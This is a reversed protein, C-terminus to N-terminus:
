WVEAGDREHHRLPTFGIQARPSPPRRRGAVTQSAVIFSHSAGVLPCVVHNTSCKTPCSDTTSPRCRKHRFRTGRGAVLVGSPSTDCPQSTLAGENL